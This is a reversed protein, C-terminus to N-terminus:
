AVEGKVAAAEQPHKSAMHRQLNDFHRNCCSCLGAQARNKLRTVQGRAAAARREAAEKSKREDAIEDDKEAIRQALLDRELRLREERAITEPSAYHQGHGYPCFFVIKNSAKASHRLASPLVFSVGCVCCSERFEDSM